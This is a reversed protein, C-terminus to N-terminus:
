GFFRGKKKGISKGKYFLPMSEERKYNINQDQFEIALSRQYIIEPFGNGLASHVSMAAGIIAGTIDSHKYKESM